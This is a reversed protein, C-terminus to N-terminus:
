EYRLAVIPDVKTARRAPIIGALLAVGTLFGFVIALTLPDFVSVGYLLGEHQYPVLYLRSELLRGLALSVTVGVSLGILTLIAAKRLTLALIAKPSAGLAMRIGFEQTRGEVSYSMAGYIGVAALLMALGAFSGILLLNFRDGGLAEAVRQDMTVVRSVPQDKDLALVEKRVSNAVSAPSVATSVVLFMSPDPNQLFPFYVDDFDAENFGVEKTNGVIGVIEARGRNVIKDYGGPLIELEKGLPNENRFFHRVFNENVIVVHPAAATDHQDFDRGALLSIGMVRFYGATAIRLLAGPEEGSAPRPRGTIGFRVDVGSTLPVQNAAVASRISPLRRVRDLLSQYFLAVKEPSSYGPGKVEIRMTLINHPEFGLSVRALRLHSNVFLGAGFLLILAIAVQAAVLANRARNQGRGGVVARSGEKLHSNLDVKSAFLAPALGFLVTTVLSSILAFAFVRADLGIQEGRPLSAIFASSIRITWYALLTGLAGAPLALALSEILLQRILVTRDAGLATRVAFEKQRTLGRSLLLNAVNVCAILLLLCAAGFFFFLFNTMSAYATYAQRLTEVRVGWDGDEKPYEHALRQVITTMETRARALDVGPKLRGFVPFIRDARNATTAADLVLPIYLDPDPYFELHFRSPCVGVVTLQQGNLGIAKGVLSRDSQFHGEWLKYSLIAVRNRGPLEEEPRFARGLFPAVQLIGFFNSSVGMAYVREANGNGTLTEYGGWDFAALGDFVANQSKWDLYDAASAPGQNWTQKLNASSVAVLHESDPFPLPRWLVSEVVSFIATNAGIGLALTMVAVATFGPNKRLMRLGYRLDQLLTQMSFARQSGELLRGAMKVPSFGKLIKFIGLWPQRLKEPV